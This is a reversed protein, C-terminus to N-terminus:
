GEGWYWSLLQGLHGRLRRCHRVSLRDVDQEGQMVLEVDKLKSSRELDQGTGKVIDVLGTLM